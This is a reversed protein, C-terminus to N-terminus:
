MPQPAFGDPIVLHQECWPCEAGQSEDPCCSKCLGGHVGTPCLLIQEQPYACECSVCRHLCGDAATFLHASVFFVACDACRVEGAPIAVACEACLVDQRCRAPCFYFPAVAPDSVSVTHEEFTEQCGICTHM